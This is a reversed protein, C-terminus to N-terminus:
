VMVASLTQFFSMQKKQVICLVIHLKISLFLSIPPFPDLHPPSRPATTTLATAECCSPETNAARNFGVLAERTPNVHEGQTQM